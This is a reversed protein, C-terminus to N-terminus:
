NGIKLISNFAAIKVFLLFNSCGTFFSDNCKNKQHSTNSSQTILANLSNGTQHSLRDLLSHITGFRCTLVRLSYLILIIKIQGPMKINTQSIQGQKM